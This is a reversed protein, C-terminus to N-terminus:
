LKKKWAEFILTVQSFMQHSIRFNGYWAYEFYFNLENFGTKLEDVNLENMYDHNTKGQDWLILNKDALMKLAYLFVLRVGLRYDNHALAEQILKDFDMAHINEDLVNHKFTGASQSSFFIKFADVKLIMLIIAVVVIITVAYTLVKGWSTNVANDFFSNILRGLWQLFRDWLSEAVTPVQDYQLEPDAKLRDVRGQDFNRVTVPITDPLAV